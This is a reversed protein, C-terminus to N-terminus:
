YRIERRLLWYGVGFFIVNGLWVSVPPWNGNKAQDVGLALLPYYVVLIPGFCVFFTKLFDDNRWRIAVPAGILVFCLCSLGNSWRRHPETQLKHVYTMIERAKEADITSAATQLARFDGTLLQFAAQAARRDEAATILDRQKNVQQGIAATTLGAAPLPGGDKDSHDLPVEREISDQFRLRGQNGIELTGNTCTIALTMAKIDARLEAEEATLTIMENNEDQSRFTITPQILKRGDVRKVIISMSQSTYTRQSRLMGYAIEEISEVVIQQAKARGWPVAQDNVWVTVLSLVVALSIVPWLVAMPSIGLSKLAVIENSGSMRGFVTCTAYLITAPITARLADPLIFPVIKVAQSPELGQLQAERIIGYIVMVFTLVGLTALFVLLTDLVVYRTIIRM